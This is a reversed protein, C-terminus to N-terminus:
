FGKGVGFSQSGARSSPAATIEVDDSLRSLLPAGRLEPSGRSCPSFRRSHKHFPAEDKIEFALKGGDHGPL